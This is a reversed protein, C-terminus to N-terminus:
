DLLFLNLSPMLWAAKISQEKLAVQLGHYRGFGKTEMLVKKCRDMKMAYLGGVFKAPVHESSFSRPVIPELGYIDYRSEDIAQRVPHLWQAPLMVDDDIRIMWDSTCVSM